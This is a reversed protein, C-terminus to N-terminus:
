ALPRRKSLAKASTTAEDIGREALVREILTYFAERDPGRVVAAEHAESLVMPYGGGAECQDAIVAHLRDLLDRREWVWCPLEVRAIESGTDVYFFGATSGDGAITQWTKSQLEIIETRAGAGHGKLLMRAVDLDRLGELATHHAKPNPAALPKLFTDGCDACLHGETAVTPCLSFRLLTVWEVARSRSIFGAVPTDTEKALKLLDGFIRILEERDGKSRVEHLMRWQVLPGDLLLVSRGPEAETALLELALQLEAKLREVELQVPLANAASLADANQPAGDPNVGARKPPKLTPTSDLRCRARGPPAGYRFVACGANIVYWPAIHHYDPEVQSGDTALVTYDGARPTPFVAGFDGDVRPLAMNEGSARVADRLNAISRAVDVQARALKRKDATERATQAVSEALGHMEGVLADLDLM